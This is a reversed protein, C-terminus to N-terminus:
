DHTGPWNEHAGPWNARIKRMAQRITDTGVIGWSAFATAVLPPIVGNWNEPYFQTVGQLDDWTTADGPTRWASVVVFSWQPLDPCQTAHWHGAPPTAQLTATPAAFFQRM